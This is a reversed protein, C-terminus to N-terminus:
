HAKDVRNFLRHDFVPDSLVFTGDDREMFNGWCADAKCDYNAIFWNLQEMFQVLTPTLGPIDRIDEPYRRESSVFRIVRRALLGNETGRRVAKLKEVEVLYLALNDETNGVQGHNNLVRPKHIGAPSAIDTLYSMHRSDTTLKLVRDTQPMSYVGSFSGRALLKTGKFAPHSYRLRAVAFDKLSIVNTM